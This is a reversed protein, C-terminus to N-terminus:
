DALAPERTPTDQNCKLLYNMICSQIKSERGCIENERVRFTKTLIKELATFHMNSHMISTIFIIRGGVHAYALADGITKSHGFRFRRKRFVVNARTKVLYLVGIKKKDTFGFPIKKKITKTAQMKAQKISARYRRLNKRNQANKCDRCNIELCDSNKNKMNITYECISKAIKCKRCVRINPRIETM